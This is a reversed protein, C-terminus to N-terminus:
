RAPRFIEGLRIPDVIANGVDEVVGRPGIRLTVPVRHVRYADLVQRGPSALVPFQIGMATLFGPPPQDLVIGLVRVGAPQRAYARNWEPIMKHCTPCSSLFFLLITAGKPPFDVSQVGGDVGASSFPPVKDGPALSPPPSAPPAALAAALLVAIWPPNM